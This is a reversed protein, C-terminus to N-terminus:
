NSFIKLDVSDAMAKYGADNPHLHDRINFDSRIQKEQSPDRVAKDFDFVADFVGSTRIWQNVAERVPEGAESYYAAGEYPTLTCGIAKLGHLHARDALQRLLSQCNQHDRRFQGLQQRHAIASHNHVAASNDALKRALM